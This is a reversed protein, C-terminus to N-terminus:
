QPSPLHPPTLLETELLCSLPPVWWSKCWWVSTLNVDGV